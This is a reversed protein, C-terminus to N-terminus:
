NPNAKKKPALPPMDDKFKKTVKFKRKQGSASKSYEKNHTNLSQKNKSQSNILRKRLHNIKKDKSSQNPQQDDINAIAESSASPSLMAKVATAAGNANQQSTTEARKRM